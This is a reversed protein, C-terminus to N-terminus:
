KFTLASISAKLRSFARYHAKETITFYRLVMTQLELYCEDIMFKEGNDRDGPQHHPGGPHPRQDQCDQGWHPVQRGQGGILPWYQSIRVLWLEGRWWAAPTSTPSPSARPRAAAPAARSSWEWARRVRSSCQWSRFMSILHKLNLQHTPMRWSRRLHM